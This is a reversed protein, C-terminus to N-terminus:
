TTPKTLDLLHIILELIEITLDRLQTLILGM